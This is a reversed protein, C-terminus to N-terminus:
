FHFDVVVLYQKDANEQLRERFYRLDPSWAQADYIGSDSCWFNSLVQGMKYLAYGERDYRDQKDVDYSISEVGLDAIIKQCHEIESQRRGLFDAIVKEALEPNDSYRLIDGEVVEGSWRGALGEGLGGFWDFWTGGAETASELFTEVFAEPSDTDEDEIEVIIIQATHM